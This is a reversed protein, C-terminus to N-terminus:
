FNGRVVVGMKPATKSDRSDLVLWSVGVGVGLMGVAGMVNALTANRRAALAEARTVQFYGDGDTDRMQSGVTAASGGVALGVSLVVFGALAAYTGPRRWLPKPPIPKPDFEEEVNAVPTSVAEPDLQAEVQATGGPPVTITEEYSEYGDSTVRVPQTGAPVAGEFYPGDAILRSGWRIQARDVNTAVVLEGLPTSLKQLLAAIPAELGRPLEGKDLEERGIKKEAYVGGAWDFAVARLAGSDLEALLVRDVGLRHSLAMLCSSERCDQTPVDSGKLLEHVQEGSVIRSFQGGATAIQILTSEVPSALGGDGETLAVTVIALSPTLNPGERTLDLGLGQAVAVGSVALHAILYATWVIRPLV